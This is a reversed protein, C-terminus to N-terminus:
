KSINGQNNNWSGSNVMNMIHDIFQKSNLTQELKKTDTNPADIKVTLTGFDIKGKMESVNSTTNQGMLESLITTTGQARQFIKDIDPSFMAGDNKTISKYFDGESKVIPSSGPPFLMDGGLKVQTPTPTPPTTSGGGLPVDTPIPEVGDTPNPNENEKPKKKWTDEKSMNEAVKELGKSSAEAAAAAGANSVLLATKVTNTSADTVKMFADETSKNAEEISQLMKKEEEKSLSAVIAHEIKNLSAAQKEATSLQEVALEKDSKGAKTQYDLLAKEFNKDGVLKDITKGQEDFGPIDVKISGDKQIQSLQGIINQQEEGLSSLDAKTKIYDLKALEKGAMSAEEYSIGLSQAAAKMAYMDETTQTFTGTAKDFTFSAKSMNLVEDTLKKMDKQGMYMLQFPDALAGVNGGIMQLSSAVELAKEPDLISDAAGKIQLKELSTGLLKTKKVLKELDDIGNKFGYLSAQKLNKAIEQTFGKADLGNQRAVKGLRTMELTAELQSGGFMSFDGIMKGTEESTLGAVKSFAMANSLVEKQPMVMKSTTSVLGAMIDASDKFTMNLDLNATFADRMEKRFDEAGFVVGGMSRQLANASDEMTTMQKNLNDMVTSADAVSAVYANFKEEMATLQAIPGSGKSTIQASKDDGEQKIDKDGEFLLM